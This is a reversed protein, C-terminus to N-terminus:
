KSLFFNYVEKFEKLFFGCVTFIFNGVKKTDLQPQIANPETKAVSSEKTNCTQLAPNSQTANENSKQLVVFDQDPSQQYLKYFERWKKGWSLEFHPTDNFSKGWVMGCETDLKLEQCIKWIEGNRKYDTTGNTNVFIDCALGYFHMSEYAHKANSVGSKHLRIAEAEDKRLSSSIQANIGQKYCEQLLLEFIRKAEGKLLSLNKQTTKSYAFM